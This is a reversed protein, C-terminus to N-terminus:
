RRVREITKAIKSCLADLEEPTNDACLSVRVACDADKDSVGLAGLVGSKKGRSCASGSSVYIGDEELSHLMIESRVGRVSFNIINPVCDAGSNMGIDEMQALKDLLHAKLEAFKATDGRYARIAADFGAILEAPETGSRLDGQQGGGSIIPLINQGKKVFLAGIGKAAHIKHGSVSILDGDLPMKLFGQVADIHVVTKPNKRKVERYLRPVDIKFGTENNVAMASLLATNEDVAGILAGTFDGFDRPALRAVEYGDEELRVLTKTVSPHEIATTVIRGFRPRFRHASGLIALNNSETAGSTFVVTGDLPTKTGSLAALVTKRARSIIQMSSTGLKHLSSANGFATEMTECVARRCEECPKTTAANDLYIM